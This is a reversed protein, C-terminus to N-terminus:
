EVRQLQSHSVSQNSERHNGSQSEFQSDSETVTERISESERHSVRVSEVRHKHGIWSLKFVAHLADCQSDSQTQRLELRCTLLRPTRSHRNGKLESSSLLITKSDWNGNTVCTIWSQVKTSTSYPTARAISGPHCLCGGVGVLPQVGKGFGKLLKCVCWTNTVRTETGCKSQREDHRRCGKVNVDVIKVCM